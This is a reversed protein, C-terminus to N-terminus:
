DKRRFDACDASDWSVFQGSLSKPARTALEAIVYGADEPKVLKGDTHAKIFSKHDAEKMTLAGLSRITAQMQFVANM